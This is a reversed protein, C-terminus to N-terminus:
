AASRRWIAPPRVGGAAGTPPSGPWSASPPWAPPRTPWPSSPGCRMKSAAASTPATPRSPGTSWTSVTAPPRSTPPTASETAIEPPLAHRSRCRRLRRPRRGDAAASPTPMRAPGAAKAKRGRAGAEADEWERAGDDRTWLPPAPGRRVVGASGSTSRTGAENTPRVGASVQHAGRRAVNGWGATKRPSRPRRAPAGTPGRDHRGPSSEDSPRRPSRGARPPGTPIGCRPRPAGTWPGAQDPPARVRRAASALPPARAPSAARRGSRGHQTGAARSPRERAKGQVRARRSGAPVVVVEARCRCQPDGGSKASRRAAASAHGSGVQAEVAAPHPAPRGATSRRQRPAVPGRRRASGGSRASPRPSEAPLLEPADPSELHGRRAAGPRRQSAGM